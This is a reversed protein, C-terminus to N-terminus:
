SRKGSARQVTGTILRAGREYRFYTWAWEAVVLFRNRFGILWVIHVLLWFLWALFGHVKLGAVEAVAAARGITALMGRSRYTFPLGPRGHIARLINKAAHRGEQVAVPALAPLPQGDQKLSALDGIVFLGPAGAVSLDAQIPVRGGSDLPVGLSRALPSAEVGAAWFITRAEVREVGVTAGAEDLETVPHGTSVEVGLRSLAEAARKSLEPSFGPLIRPGAEMLLVRAKGPDIRRFDRTMVHRAIEAIAGALEVGTPGGGVIIFTLWAKQRALDTEWEASEFALLIRKRIELAEEITKLGPAAEAWEPHGFYSHTVGAALILFDYPVTGGSLLVRKGKTDVGVAEALLVSTNRQKRLIQRIPVAIDSPNLAATAVQYLLPQFLHHNRQDILTVEAQAGRLAKAATLGGFGGGLIVIRPRTDPPGAASSRVADAPM